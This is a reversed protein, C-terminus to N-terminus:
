ERSGYVGGLIEIVEAVADDDCHSVLRARGWDKVPQACNAPAFPIASVALMPIDNQNDGICYVNEPKLGLIDRLKEVLAGKTNGKATVELLYPNSFIVEYLDSWRELLIEQAQELVPHDQELLLKVWPMDMDAVRECVTYPVNVRELHTQTVLNPNYVFVKGDHYTELGLDPLLTLLQQLHIAISGPLNSRHLYEGKEYDYIASGNGLIVPANITLQEKAIQPTFTEFARGTAVTFRGGESIFRSIADRNRQSVELRQNYLTDDYDSVLLVGDFKGM